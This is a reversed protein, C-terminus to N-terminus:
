PPGSNAWWGITYLSDLVHDETGDSRFAFEEEARSLSVHYGMSVPRGNELRVLELVWTITGAPVRALASDRVAQPMEEPMWHIVWSVIGKGPVVHVTYMQQAHRISISYRYVKGKKSAMFTNLIEADPFQKNVADLVEQPPAFRRSEPFKAKEGCGSILFALLVIMGASFLLHHM